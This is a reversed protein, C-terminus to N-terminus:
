EKWYCFYGDKYPNKRIQLDPYLLQFASQIEEESVDKLSLDRLLAGDKLILLRDCYSLATEPDHLVLLAGKKYEQVSLRLTKFLLRTNYYDLSSNPEDLLMLPTDQVFMRCLLVMQQQGASLLSCDKDLFRSINLKESIKEIRNKSEESPTSFFFQSPYLGMELIERVSIGDPIQAKQPLVSILKARKKASLKFVDTNEVMAFGSFVKADGTIGKLLTTKGQGNEGIIGIVEGEDVSFSIDSIVPFTYGVTLNKAKFIM